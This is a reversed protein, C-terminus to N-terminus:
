KKKKKVCNPYRKGFMTKMGKQTYGRWCKETIESENQEENIDESCTTEYINILDQGFINRCTETLYDLAYVYEDNNEEIDSLFDRVAYDIVEDAYDYGDSFEECLTPYELEGKTIYDRLFDKNARRKISDPVTSENIGMVEKIRDINEQLNM